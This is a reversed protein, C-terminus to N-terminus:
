NQRNKPLLRDAFNLYQAWDYATIDHPGRRIHYGITNGVPQDVAPMTAVGLGPKGFLAWVPEAEKAGLFEGKPDAWADDQASAVYLPRPAVLALLEHQDVPLANENNNYTKFKDVFWHPFSTNIREITEGFCRRALAAGGEGSDNSIVIAFREDNAAAWLAAKGLRSHGHLVVRRADVAADTELYDMLRSLGWAWAGIASWDTPALRLDNKLTTRIGTQWGSAYDPELDGYYVTAVGYGRGVVEEVQWRHAEIGRAKETARNGVVEGDRTNPLWRESLLIGPDANICQNGSFNLGAFVPVPGSTRPLYLLVNMSPADNGPGFYVTVQKRIAKGGLARDDVSRVVSRLSTPKGPMQGYVHEKFLALLAPRQEATWQAPTTVRKGAPTTLVDPLTYAPVKNEDYNIMTKTQALGTTSVSAVLLCLITTKM